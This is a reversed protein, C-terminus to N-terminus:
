KDVHVKNKQCTNTAVSQLGSLGDFVKHEMIAEVLRRDLKLFAYMHRLAFCTACHSLTPQSRQHNANIALGMIYPLSTHCHPTVNCLNANHLKPHITM